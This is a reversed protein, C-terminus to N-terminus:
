FPHLKNIDDILGDLNNPLYAETTSINRHGALYQAKRLGQTKLWFTIVSARIQTFNLFQKDILKIQPTFGEFFYTLKGTTSKKGIASLSLFLKDSDNTNYELFQPRINQLYNMFLGIQTAKLPLIRENLRKGGRIKLTAKILDVDDIEIKGIETVVVGQNVLVSLILANREKSLASYQRQLDHRQHSNDYNRVYLQYYNDFLTELEEPTYIKYLTKRKTGRIKLFLCPNDTIQEDKYLFTFYHNLATLHNKRTANKLGKNKLHELYNLIDPKAAQIDEKSRSHEACTKLWKFFVNLRIFCEKQTRKAFGKSELYATFQSVGFTTKKNKM